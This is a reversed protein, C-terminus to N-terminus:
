VGQAIATCSGAKYYIVTKRGKWLMIKKELVGSAVLDNLIGDSREHSIRERKQYEQSSIGFCDRRVPPLENSILPLLSEDM